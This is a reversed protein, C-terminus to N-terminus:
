SNPPERNLNERILQELEAYEKPNRDIIEEVVSDLELISRLKNKPNRMHDIMEDITYEKDSKM